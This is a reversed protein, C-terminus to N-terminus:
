TTLRQGQRILQYIEDNTTDVFDLLTEDQDVFVIQLPICIIGRKKMEEPSVGCSTDTVFAVKM